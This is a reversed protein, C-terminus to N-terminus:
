GEYVVDDEYLADDDNACPLSSRPQGFAVPDIVTVFM